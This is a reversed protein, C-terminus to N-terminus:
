STPAPDLIAPIFGRVSNILYIADAQFLAEKPLIAERLVGQQLLEERLTGPLLGSSAPPTLKEEGMVLVLNAITSETLEGRRNWLIVDDVQPHDRRAAEYHTRLTTKHRLFPNDPEIPFTALQVRWPQPLPQLPSAEIQIEGHPSLLLRVRYAPETFATTLTQLRERLNQISCPFHFYHASACIRTLHRELLAYGQDSTWRITELLHFSPRPRTLIQAKLLCERYESAATSDWVIGSGVGYRMRQTAHHIVATRIAVNFQAQGHPSLFGISGTYIGRPEPELEHILEMTRVKPAGTISASPFLAGLIEVFSADSRAQVTSTMQYLTPYPEIRFLDPTHVSGVHAIRGLDNRIMDVIMVNEARNKASHALQRAIERDEAATAGRPATGKMPRMWLRDHDQYFFLEPSASAITLDDTKLYAAFRAYQNHQMWLFFAWPSGDLMAVVPFTFNVQYTDGRAIAQKIRQIAQSYAPEDLKYRLPHLRFTKLDPWPLTEITTPETFLGFWTLPTQPLPPHNKLAKDFAPVAEYSLFGVAWLGEEQVAREVEALLALVRDTRYTHLVRKPAQFGLWVGSRADRVLAHPQFSALNLPQSITM